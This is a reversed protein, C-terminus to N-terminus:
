LEDSFGGLKAVEQQVNRMEAEEDIWAYYQRATQPTICLLRAAGAYDGPHYKLHLTALGHRLNHPTMPLGIARTHNTLWAGLSKQGILAGHYGPFLFPSQETWPIRPRIEDIYWQLVELGRTPGQSIRARIPRSNKVDQANIFIHAEDRARYPLVLSPNEGRHRLGILNGLRLPVAWLGVACVAALMGFQVIREQDYTDADPKEILALAQKRFQLHLSLFTLEARRERVLRSCFLRVHEPMRKGDEFGKRMNRNANLTKEMLPVIQPNLRVAAMRLIGVYSRMSRDSIKRTPDTEAIWDRLVFIFIDRTFANAIDSTPSLVGIRMASGLYKNLAARYIALTASSKGELSEDLIEDYVGGVLDEVLRDVQDKLHEPLPLQGSRRVKALDPLHGPPLLADLVPSSQRMTELNRIANRVSRRQTGRLADSLQALFPEALQDPQQDAKRAEDALLRIPILKQMSSGGKVELLSVCVDLLEAWGDKRGTRQAKATFEGHFRKLIAIMKRRWARYADPTKFGAPFDNRKFRAAFADVSSSIDELRNANHIRPCREIQAMYDKETAARYPKKDQIWNRVDLITSNSLNINEM